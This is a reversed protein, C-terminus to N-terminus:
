KYATDFFIYKIEGCEDPPKVLEILDVMIDSDSGASYSVAVRKHQRLKNRTVMLYKFINHNRPIDGDLFAAFEADNM